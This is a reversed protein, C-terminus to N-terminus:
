LAFYFIHEEGALGTSEADDKTIVVVTDFRGFPLRRSKPIAKVIDDEEGEVNVDHISKPHFRFMNYANVKTFPLTHLVELRRGSIPSPAFANLFHKLYHSFDPANHKEEILSIPRNPFNPFKTISISPKGPISSAAPEATPPIKTSLHSEFWSIKERRSLWRIMQPFEDRQNSARWGEKAFDIHLREFMETNYNDTTGFLEIAEIYHLLSHFKPINFDKRVLTDIFYHRHKHFRDLADRLYGLTITDHTPYQALYIFDLLATIANIGYTPMKGILCGLLIKAMNKREPGSIQSLSSIGNKFKRLGFGLPLCRIRADLEAPTM